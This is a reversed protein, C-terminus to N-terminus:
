VEDHVARGDGKGSVWGMGDGDADCGVGWRGKDGAVDRGPQRHDWPGIPPFYSQRGGM